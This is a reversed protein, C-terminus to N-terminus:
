KKRKNLVPAGRWYRRIVETCNGMAHNPQWTNHKSSYGKWKVFYWKASSKNIPQAHQLISEVEFEENKNTDPNHQSQLKL